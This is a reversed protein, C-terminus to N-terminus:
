DYIQKKKWEASGEEFRDWQEDLESREDTSGPSAEELKRIHVQLSAITNRIQALRSEYTGTKGERLLLKEALDFFHVALKFKENQVALQGQLLYGDVTVQLLQQKIQARYADAQARNLRQRNELNFVFKHLEELSIRIDKVQAPNSLPAREPARAQNQTEALMNSYTQIDERHGYDRPELQALEESVDILSRQVLAALDRSLVGSPCSSLMFKFNRSQAKLAGLIRARQERKQQITQSVFAYCVLVALLAVIITVIAISSM